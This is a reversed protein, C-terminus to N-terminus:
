FSCVYCLWVRWNSAMLVLSHHYFTSLALIGVEFDFALFFGPEPVIHRRNSVKRVMSLCLASQPGQAQQVPPFQCRNHQVALVSQDTGLFSSKFLGLPFLALSSILCPHCMYACSFYLLMCVLAESTSSPIYTSHADLCLWM